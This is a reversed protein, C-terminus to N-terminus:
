HVIISATKRSHSTTATARGQRTERLQMLQRRKTPWDSKPALLADVDPCTAMLQVLTVGGLTLDSGCATVNANARLCATEVTKVVSYDPEWSCGATGVRQGPECMGEEPLSFRTQPRTLSHTHNTQERYQQHSQCIKSKGIVELILQMNLIVNVIYLLDSIGIIM